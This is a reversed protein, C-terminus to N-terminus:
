RNSIGRDAPSRGAADIVGRALRGSQAAPPAAAHRRQQDRVEAAKLMRGLTRLSIRQRRESTAAAGVQGAGAATTVGFPERDGGVCGALSVVLAPLLNIQFATTRAM